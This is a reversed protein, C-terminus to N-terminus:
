FLSLKDAYGYRRHIAPSVEIIRVTCPGAQHPWQLVDALRPRDPPPNWEVIILEANLGHRRAQELLGDVFIQMRKLLSGGHDDNRATVVVSVRPPANM